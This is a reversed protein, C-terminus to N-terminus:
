PEAGGGLNFGRGQLVLVGLVEGALEEVGAHGAVPVAPDAVALHSGLKLAPGIFFADFGRRLVESVGQANPLALGQLAGPIASPASEGSSRCSGGHVTPCRPM